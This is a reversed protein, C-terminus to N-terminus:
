LYFKLGIGVDIRSLNEYHEKDLEITQSSSGDNVKIKNIGSRYYGISAGAAMNKLIFYELGLESNGGFSKGTILVPSFILVSEQRYLNLGMSIQGNFVFRPGIKYFFYFSPGFYNNFVKDSFDGYFLTMGDGPDLIRTITASSSFFSYDIGIGYEKHFLYHLQGSSKIGFQWHNIYSDIESSEFGETLLSQRIDNTNAIRYGAGGNVSIRWKNTSNEANFINDAPPETSTIQAILFNPVYCLM